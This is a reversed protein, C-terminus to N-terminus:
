AIELIAKLDRSTQPYITKQTEIEEICCSIHWPDKLNFRKAIRANSISVAENKVLYFCLKRRYAILAESSRQLLQEETCDFYACAARIIREIIPKSIVPLVQTSM